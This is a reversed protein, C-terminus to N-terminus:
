TERPSAASPRVFALATVLPVVVIGYRGAGFFVAHALATAAVVVAAWPVVLPLELVRRRGLLAVLVALALYAPWAHVTLAFAAAVVAVLGRLRARPGALRATAVLAGLLLLRSVVTEVVGLALKDVERFAAGNSARLYWPAGGFYDFTAALKKPAAALWSGPATVIVRRGAREFCTDKAAEDWVTRCEEPVDVEAWAGTTTQAGILLNWGGNVSVLACRQMRVCNRVTWPLCATVTVATVFAAAPRVAAYTPATTIATCGDSTGYM